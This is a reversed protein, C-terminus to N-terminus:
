SLQPEVTYVMNYNEAQEATNHTPEKQLDTFITRRFLFQKFFLQYIHVVCGRFVWNIKCADTVKMSESEQAYM